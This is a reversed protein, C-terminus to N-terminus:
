AAGPAPAAAKLREPPIKTVHDIRSTIGGTVLSKMASNLAAGIMVGIGLVVLLEM